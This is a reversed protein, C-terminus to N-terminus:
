RRPSPSRCDRRLRPPCTRRHLLRRARRRASQRPGNWRIASAAAALATFSTCTAPRWACGSFKAPMHKIDDPPRRQLHRGQRGTRSRRRIHGVARRPAARERPHHVRRDSGAAGQGRRHRRSVPRRRAHRRRAARLPRLDHAFADGSRRDSQQAHQGDSQRHQRSRGARSPRWVLGRQGRPVGLLRGVSPHRCLLLVVPQRLQRRHHREASVPALAKYILDIVRNCQAFRAEAAAPYIPNYISGKPAIVKVPRFSGQNSPVKVDSTVADLLLSRIACFCAVKTSGEFPVNFATEVQKSSGTLDIEIGDGKVRVCVKIPLRVDRNKGDDDLFGEARYEGDPIAAIRQRLVRETYDMLQQTADLVLQRGYRDM